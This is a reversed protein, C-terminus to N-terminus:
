EGPVAGDGGVSGEGRGDRQVQAGSEGRGYYTLTVIGGGNTMLPAAERAVAILSYVSV